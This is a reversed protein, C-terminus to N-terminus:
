RITGDAEMHSQPANQRGGSRRALRYVVLTLSVVDCRACRVGYGSSSEDRAPRRYPRDFVSRQPDTTEEMDFEKVPRDLARNTSTLVQPKGVSVLECHTWKM